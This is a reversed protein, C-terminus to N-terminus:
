VRPNNLALGENVLIDQLYFLYQFLYIYHFSISDSTLENPNQMLLLLSVLAWTIQLNWPWYFFSYTCYKLFEFCRVAILM